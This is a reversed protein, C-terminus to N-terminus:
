EEWDVVDVYEEENDDDIIVEVVVEEELEVEVEDVDENTGDHLGPPFVPEFVVPTSLSGIGALMYASSDPTLQEASEM